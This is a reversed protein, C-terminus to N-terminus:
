DVLDAEESISSRQRKENRCMHAALGLLFPLALSRLLENRRVDLKVWVRCRGLERVIFVRYNLDASM